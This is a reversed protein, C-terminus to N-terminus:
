ISSAPTCETRADSTRFPPLQSPAPAAPEDTPPTCADILREVAPADGILRLQDTSRATDLDSQGRLLAALTATDTEVSADAGPLPQRHATITGATVHLAFCDDGLRLEYDAHLHGARPADFRARMHLVLADPSLGADRDLLPSRGAWRGLHVVIPEIQQGWETLGYLWSSVPPGHRARRLVGGAELERLRQSLVTHSVGPLGRHLDGYRKPGLLLERVVLLAWRGGVLEMAHAVACGDRYSRMTM